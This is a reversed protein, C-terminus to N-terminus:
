GGVDIKPPPNEGKVFGNEIFIAYHYPSGEVLGKDDRIHLALAKSKTATDREVVDVSSQTRVLLDDPFQFHAKQDTEEAFKWVITDGCKVELTKKDIEWKSENSEPKAKRSIMVVHEVNEM